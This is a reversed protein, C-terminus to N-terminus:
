SLDVLADFWDPWDGNASYQSWLGDGSDTSFAPTVYATWKQPGTDVLGRGGFGSDPLGKLSVAVVWVLQRPDRDLRAMGNGLGRANVDEFRVLKAEVRTPQQKVKAGVWRDLVQQRTIDPKQSAPLPSSLAISAVLADVEQRYATDAPTATIVLMRGDFLTPVIWEREVLGHNDPPQAGRDVTFTAGERGAITMPSAGTRFYERAYGTADLHDPNVWIEVRVVSTGPWNLSLGPSAIGLDPDHTWFMAGGFGWRQPWWGDPVALSWGGAANEARALGGPAPAVALTPTPRPTPMVIPPPAGAAPEFPHSTPDPARDVLSEFPQGIWWTGAAAAIGVLAGTRADLVYLILSVTDGLTMDAFNPVKLEPPRRAEGAYMLVWVMTDGPPLSSRPAWSWKAIEAIDAWRVLKSDNLAVNKLDGTAAVIEKARDRSIFAGTAGTEAGCRYVRLGDDFAGALATGSPNFAALKSGAPIRSADRMKQGDWGIVNWTATAVREGFMAQSGDPSWLAFVPPVARTQYVRKGSTLMTAVGPESALLNAGASSWAAGTLPVLGARGEVTSGYLTTGSSTITYKQGDASFTVEPRGTIPSLDPVHDAFRGSDGDRWARVTTGDWYVLTDGQWGFSSAAIKARTTSGSADSVVIEPGRTFAFYKGSASWRGGSGDGVFRPTWAPTDLIAVRSRGDADVTVAVAGGDPRWSLGTAHVPARAIREDCQAPAHDAPAATAILQPALAADRQDDPSRQPTGVNTSTVVLGVTVVATACVAIILRLARM